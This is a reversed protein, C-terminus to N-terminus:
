RRLGMCWRLLRESADADHYDHMWERIRRRQGEFADQGAGQRIELLEAELSDQTECVVGAAVEHFGFYMGRDHAVYDELDYALFVVPRDLLLFDFYISSYDTILVDCMRMIPYIDGAPNSDIVGPLRRAAGRGAMFPHLKTVILFGHREAFRSLREEDLVRGFPSSLSKRFTPAYLCVTRGGARASRIEDLTAMDVNIAHMGAPADAAGLLVDNRPYGTVVLERARFCQAFIGDALRRSTTVVADYRPYRGILRKFVQLLARRWRPLAEVRRRFVDLEIHKLPAGHWMQVRRAGHSLAFAGHDFWGSVDTIVTGCRLLLWLSRASPHHLAEGGLARIEHGLRRNGSLFVVRGQGAMAASAHVFFYKSNDLFAPRSIVAIWRRERRVFPLSAARLLWALLSVLVQRIARLAEAGRRWPEPAKM